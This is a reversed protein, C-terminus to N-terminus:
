GKGVPRYFARRDGGCRYVPIGCPGVPRRDTGGPRGADALARGACIKGACVGRM